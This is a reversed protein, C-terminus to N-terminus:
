MDGCKHWTIQVTKVSVRNYALSFLGAVHASLASHTKYIQSQTETDSLLSLLATFIQYIGELGTYFGQRLSWLVYPFVDQYLTLECLHSCVVIMSNKRLDFTLFCGYFM